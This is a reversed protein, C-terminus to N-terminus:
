SVYEIEDSRMWSWHSGDWFWSGGIANITTGPPEGAPLPWAGPYGGTGFEITHELTIPALSSPEAPVAENYRVPYSLPAALWQALLHGGHRPGGSGEGMMQAEQELELNLMYRALTLRRVPDYQL